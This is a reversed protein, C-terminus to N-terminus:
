SLLLSSDEALGAITGLRLEHGELGHADRLALQHSYASSSSSSGGRCAAFDLIFSSLKSDITRHQLHRKTKWFYAMSQDSKNM